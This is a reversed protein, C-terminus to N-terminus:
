NNAAKYAVSSGSASGSGKSASQSLLQTNGTGSEGEKSTSTKSSTSSAAEDASGADTETYGMQSALGTLTNAAEAALSAYAKATELGVLGASAATRGALNEQLQRNTTSSYLGSSAAAQNLGPLYEQMIGRMAEDVAIKSDTKAQGATFYNVNGLAAAQGALLNAKTTADIVRAREKSYSSTNSSSTSAMDTLAQTAERSFSSTKDEETKAKSTSKSKSKSKSGGISLSM